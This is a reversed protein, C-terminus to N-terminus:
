GEQTQFSLFAFLWDEPAANKMLGTKIDHNKSTVLMDLADPTEIPKFSSVDGGPVPSQLIAPRSADTILSWPEDDPWNATLDSILESWGEEASPLDDKRGEVLGAGCGSRSLRAM